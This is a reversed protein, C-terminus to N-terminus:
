FSHVASRGKERPVLNRQQKGAHLAVGRCEAVGNRKEVRQVIVLPVEPAPKM